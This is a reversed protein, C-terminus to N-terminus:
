FDVISNDDIYDTRYVLSPEKSMEVFINDGKSASYDESPITSSKSILLIVKPTSSDVQFRSPLETNDEFLELKEYLKKNYSIYFHQTIPYNEEDHINGDGDCYDCSETGDECRDCDSQGRGGCTDCTVEGNGNCEMCEDGDDDQGSGDCEDCTKNGNGDCEDCDVEGSGGCWDCTIYGDGGCDDCSQEVYDDDISFISFSFINQIIKEYLQSMDTGSSYKPVLFCLIVLDLPSLIKKFNSYHKDTLLYHLLNNPTKNLNKDVLKKTLFLIKEKRDM